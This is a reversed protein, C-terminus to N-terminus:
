AENLKEECHEKILQVLVASFNLNKKVCYEKLQQVAQEDEPKKTKTSFTHVAM